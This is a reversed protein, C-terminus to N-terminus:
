AAREGLGYPGLVTDRHQRYNEDWQELVVRVPLGERQVLHRAYQEADAESSVPGHCYTEWQRYSSQVQFRAAYM